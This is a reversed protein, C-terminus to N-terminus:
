CASGAVLREPGVLAVTAVEVAPALAVGLAAFFAHAEPSPAGAAVAQRVRALGLVRRLPRLVLLRAVVSAPARFAWGILGRRLSGPAGFREIARIRLTEFFEASAALYSPALETLDAAVSDPTEPLVLQHREELWRGVVLGLSAPRALEEVLLATDATSLAPLEAPHLHPEPHLLAIQWGDPALRAIELPASREAPAAEPSPPESRELVDLSVLREDRRWGLGRPRDFVIRRADGGADLFTDVQEEGGAHVFRVEVTELLEGLRGPSVRPDVVLPTAGVAQLALVSLLARPRADALVLVRDGRALGQARWGASLRGVATALEGWSLAAWRGRQKWRLAITSGAAM